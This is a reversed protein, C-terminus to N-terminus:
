MVSVWLASKSDLLLARIVKAPLGAAPGIRTFVGERWKLLGQRTGIWLGGDKTRWTCVSWEQPEVSANTLEAAESAAVLALWIAVWAGLRAAPRPWFGRWKARPEAEEM